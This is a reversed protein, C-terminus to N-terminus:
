RLRLGTASAPLPSPPTARRASAEELTLTRDPARLRLAFALSRRGGGGATRHLRRVPPRGRRPRRRGRAPGHRGRGRAGAADLVLAVDLLVPPFPSVAPAPRANPCRSGTSSSSWRPRASPCARPDRPGQPAARRRPRCLRRRRCTCRPAAAPTGPRTATPPSRWSSATSVRGVLRAAEVADAWGAARGPGWWGPREWAGSLVAGVRLPQPPLAALIEAFEAATPGAHRRRAGAAAAPEGADPACSRASTSCPSTACAGRSTASACRRAAGPAVHHGHLARDADLPNALRLARRACTTPTSVSRTSSPRAGRVALAAGRRLRRRRPGALGPPAPAAGLTLGTGPRPAPLESPIVDYGELRLVEEVLDAPRTLDPRWTPPTARLSAEGGDSLDAGAVEVACGIQSLRCGRSVSVASGM